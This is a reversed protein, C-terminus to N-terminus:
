PQPPKGELVQRFYHDTIEDHMLTALSAHDHRLQITISGADYKNCPKHTRLTFITALDTLSLLGQGRLYPSVGCLASVQVAPFGDLCYRFEGVRVPEDHEPDFPKGATTPYYKQKTLRHEIGKKTVFEKPLTTLDSGTDLRFKLQAPAGKRRQFHLVIEIRKAIRDALRIYEDQIPFRVCPPRFRAVLLRVRAIM